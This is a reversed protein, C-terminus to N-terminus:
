DGAAITNVLFDGGSATGNADYVRGRIEASGGEPSSWTVMFRGDSLAAVSPTHQDGATTTNVLFDGGAPTSDANYLRGRIQYDGTEKSEWTVVFRGDPLAAISPAFQFGANATSSVIFDGGAPTGDANYIRAAVGAWAVVFRGDTLGTVSAQGAAPTHVVFDSGAAAGDANYIRAHVAFTQNFHDEVKWALVFRGDSLGAISVQEDPTGFTPASGVFFSSGAPTGDANYLQARIDLSPEPAWAVVFRGGPLAAVDPGGGDLAFTNAASVLFDSM